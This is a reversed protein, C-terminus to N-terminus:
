ESLEKRKNGKVAYITTVDIESRHTRGGRRSAAFERLADYGPPNKQLRPMAPLNVDVRNDFRAAGHPTTPSRVATAM